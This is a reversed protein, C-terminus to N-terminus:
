DNKREKPEYKSKLKEYLAKEKKESEEKEKLKIEKNKKRQESQKERAREERKKRLEWEEKTEFRYGYFNVDIGEYTDENRNIQIKITTPIIREDCHKIIYEIAGNLNECLKEVHLGDKLTGLDLLVEGCGRSDSHWNGVDVRIQKPVFNPDYYSLEKFKPM